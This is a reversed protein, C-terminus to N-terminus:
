FTAGDHNSHQQKQKEWADCCREGCADTTLLIVDVIDSFFTAETV